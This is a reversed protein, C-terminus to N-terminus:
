EDFRTRGRAFSRATSTVPRLMAEIEHLANQDRTNQQEPATQLTRQKGLRDMRSAEQVADGAEHASRNEYLSEQERLGELKEEVGDLLSKARNLLNPDEERGLLTKMMSEGAANRKTFFRLLNDSPHLGEQLEAECQLLSRKQIAEVKQTVWPAIAASIIPYGQQTWVAKFQPARGERKASFKETLNKARRDSLIAQVIADPQTDLNQALRDEVIRSIDPDAELQRGINKAAEMADDGLGTMAAAANEARRTVDLGESRARGFADYLAKWAEARQRPTLDALKKKAEELEAKLEESPEARGGEQALGERAAKVKEELDKKAGAAAIRDALIMTLRVMTQVEPGALSAVAEAGFQIGALMAAKAKEAAPSQWLTRIIGAGEHKKEDIDQFTEYIEGEGKRWERILEPSLSLLHDAIKEQSLKAASVTELGEEVISGGKEEIVDAMARAQRRIAEGLIVSGDIEALQPDAAKVRRITEELPEGDEFPSCFVKGDESKVYYSLQGLDQEPNDGTFRLAAGVSWVGEPTKAYALSEVARCGAYRPDLESPKIESM